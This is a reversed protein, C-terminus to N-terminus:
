RQLKLGLLFVNATYDSNPATSKLRDHTFSGRVVVSRTLSYEAGLGYSQTKETLNFGKYDRQGIAAVGTLTLNRLLAHSLQVSARRNISGSAGAINTEDFTTAGKLSVTTLPTATWILAADFVPGRLDKLRTDEYERQEYGGSVEGTLTRTLEFSSGARGTLGRSDRRYGADDVTKDHVRKDIRAEVFPKVGPTLEYSLKAEGGFTDYNQNALPLKAGDSLTGNEYQTRDISGRLTAEFRGFRHAVGASAGETYILPRNTLKAGRTGFATVEPSGPRQSDIAGRADLLVSTDRTADLRLNATGQFNPRDANDIDFFRTYGGRLNAKFEHAAWDSQAELTGEARGFKSGKVNRTLSNPNDNYGGDAEIAPRLVVNGLRVGLPKYPDTEPKPRAPTPYPIAAVTPGPAQTTPRKAARGRQGPATRYPTLAPLIPKAQKQPRTTNPKKVRPKTLGATTEGSPSTGASTSGSPPGGLAPQSSASTPAMAGAGSQRSFGRLGTVPDTPISQAAASGVCGFALLTAALASKASPVRNSM